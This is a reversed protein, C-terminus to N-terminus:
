GSDNKYGPANKKCYNGQEEYGDVIKAGLETLQEPSQSERRRPYEPGAGNYGLHRSYLKGGPACEDKGAGRYGPPSPQLETTM